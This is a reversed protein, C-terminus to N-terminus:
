EKVLKRTLIGNSTQVKIWYIGPQLNKIDLRNEKDFKGSYSKGYSDVFSANLLKYISNLTIYQSAPNPFVYFSESVLTKSAFSIGGTTTKLISKGSAWGLNSNLFFVSSVSNNTNLFDQNYWTTGGDTTKLLGESFVFGTLQDIFYLKGYNLDQNVSVSEWNNGGNTTKFFMSDGALWGIQPNIFYVSNIGKTTINLQAVWNIGSNTTKFITGRDGVAWGNQPDSFRIDRFKTQDTSLYVYQNIWTKGGNTTKDIAFIRNATKWGQLSDLFFTKGIGGNGNFETIDTKVQWSVGGDGSRILQHSFNAGSYSLKQIWITSINPIQCSTLWHNPINHPESYVTDWNVGGDETKFLESSTFAYGHQETHFKVMQTYDLVGKNILSWDSGYNMSKFIKGDTALLFSNYGKRNFLSSINNTGHQNFNVFNWNLGGDTTRYTLFRAPYTGQTTSQAPFNFVVLGTVSDSFSINRAKPQPASTHVTKMTWSNGGDTTKYVVGNLGCGWGRLSDSFYFSSLEPSPLTTYTALGNTSKLITPGKSVWIRNVDFIFIDSIDSIGDIIEWSDGRDTSKLLGSFGWAWVTETNAFQVHEINFLVPSLVSTWNIGGNTTKLITGNIGAIIGITSDLMSISNYLGLVDVKSEDWTEGGNQTRFLDGASGLIWGKNSDSFTIDQLGISTPTPSIKTWAPQAM